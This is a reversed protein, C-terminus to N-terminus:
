FEELWAIEGDMPFGAKALNDGKFARSRQNHMNHEDVDALVHDVIYECDEHCQM